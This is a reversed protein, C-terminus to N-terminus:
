QAEGSKSTVQEVRTNARHTELESRQKILAAVIGSARGAVEDVSLLRTGPTYQNPTAEQVTALAASVAILANDRFERDTM